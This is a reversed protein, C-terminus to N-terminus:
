AVRRLRKEDRELNAALALTRANLRRYKADLWMTVGTNVLLVAALPLAVALPNALFVITVFLGCFTAILINTPSQTYARRLTTM